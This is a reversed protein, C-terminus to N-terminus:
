IKASFDDSLALFIKTRFTQLLTRWTEGPLSSKLSSISQTAIIPICKAQRSLSFFKEDGTPENEGVTAFHQYEDCIFFVQRFYQGQHAEIQPVRNLVAREFDLKMMVGIAKALGPNMGIPFNLACVKGTEILWSFSPLPKGYKGDANAEQNYCEKPPCFIRKVKPNDDFLSLFVSIGEVISTRLKPEIRQWDDYFWPKVAELQARKDPDSKEAAPVTKKRFEIAHKKLHGELALTAPARYQDTDKAEDPLFDFDILVQIHQEYSAKPIFVFHKDFLLEEAQEIRQQLLEPSIACHYVDFLTVYDFAVKHLLIIFKVLNTYAQQWFPEKGKGFLNNLLSAIGYALAYGELDNYLPNYAWESALGIEIYDDARGRKLLIEKLKGCFDGKVELVLASAKADADVARYGLLQDTFPYMGGATKGSGTAGIMITGTFLGREPIILWNPNEAPIPLRPNHIEGIVVSLQNRSEVVPYLPLPQPKPSRRPRLTFIYLTSLLFSYGIYPTTFLMLNYSAKLVAYTWPDRLAVLRLFYENWTQPVLAGTVPWPLKLYLLTGTAMALLMALFNKSNLVRQIM